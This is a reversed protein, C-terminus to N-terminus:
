ADFSLDGSRCPRSKKSTTIRIEHFFLRELDLHGQGPDVLRDARKALRGEELQGLLPVSGRELRLHGAHDRGPRKVLDGNGASQPEEAASSVPTDEQSVMAQARRGRERAMDMLLPYIQRQRLIELHADPEDM